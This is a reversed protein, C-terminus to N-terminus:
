GDINLTAKQFNLIKRKKNSPTSKVTQLFVLEADWKVQVKEHSSDM